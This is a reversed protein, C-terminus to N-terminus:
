LACARAGFYVFVGVWMRARVAENRASIGRGIIVVSLSHHVSHAHKDAAFLATARQRDSLPFGGACAQLQRGDFARSRHFGRRGSAHRPANSRRKGSVSQRQAVTYKERGGYTKLRRISRFVERVSTYKEFLLIRRSFVRRAGVPSNRREEDLSCSM